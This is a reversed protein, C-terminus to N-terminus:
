VFVGEKFSVAPSNSLAPCTNYMRREGLGM